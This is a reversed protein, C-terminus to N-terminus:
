IKNKISIVEVIQMAKSTDLNLKGMLNELFLQEDKDVTGDSYVLDTCVAFTSLALESPLGAVGLDILKQIGEKDLVKFIKDNMSKFQNSNLNCLMKTRNSFTILDAVEDDSIHGDIATVAVILAWFSEEKNFSVPTNSGGLLSDFLGM